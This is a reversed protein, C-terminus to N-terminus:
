VHPSALDATDFLGSWLATVEAQLESPLEHLGPKGHGNALAALARIIAAHMLFIPAGLLTSDLFNAANGDNIFRCRRGQPGHRVTISRSTEAIPWVADLDVFGFEDDPSTVSAITCGDRLLSLDHLSLARSGTASVLYNAKRLATARLPTRYGSARANARKLDDTDFVEVRCGDRELAHAVNRGIEGYGLVLWNQRWGSARESRVVKRAARAIAQGVLINEPEKVKARALTLVSLSSAHAEYRAEGNVTDEVVGKLRGGCLDALDDLREAFYGGMDAIYVPGTELVLNAIAEVGSRHRLQEKGIDAVIAYARAAELSGPDISNPKPVLIVRACRTSLFRLLLTNDPLVHTVVILTAGSLALPGCDAVLQYLALAREVDM